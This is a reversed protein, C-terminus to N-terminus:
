KGSVAKIAGESDCGLTVKGQRINEKKCIANTVKITMYIGGLEARYSSQDNINGPVINQGKIIHDFLQQLIDQKIRDTAYSREKYKDIGSQPIKLEDIVWGYQSWEYPDHSIHDPQADIHAWGQLKIRNGISYVEAPAADKPLTAIMTGLSQLFREKSRSSRGTSLAITWIEWQDDHQKCLRTDEVSYWWSHLERANNTWIDCQFEDKIIMRSCTFHHIIAKKWLKLYSRPPKPIRPWNYKKSSCSTQKNGMLTDKTLKKGDYSSIDALTTVQLYQRVQNIQQMEQPTFTGGSIEQMIFTDDIKWKQLPKIDHTLVVDFDEMMQLTNTIWNHELLGCVFM